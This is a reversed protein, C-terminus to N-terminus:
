TQAYACYLELFKLPCTPLESRLPHAPHRGKLSGLFNTRFISGRLMTLCEGAQDINGKHATNGFIAMWDALPM